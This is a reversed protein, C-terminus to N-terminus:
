PCDYFCVCFYTTGAINGICRGNGSKELFCRRQCYNLRCGQTLTTSCRGDKNHVAVSASSFIQLLVLLLIIISSLKAMM